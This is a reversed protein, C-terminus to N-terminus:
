VRDEFRPYVYPDQQEAVTGVIVSPGIYANAQAWYHDRINEAAAFHKEFESPMGAMPNFTGSLMYEVIFQWMFAAGIARLKILNTCDAEVVAGEGYAQVADAVILALKTGDLTGVYANTEAPLLAILYTALAVPM